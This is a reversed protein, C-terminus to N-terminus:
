WGPPARGVAAFAAHLAAGRGGALAPWVAKLGSGLGQECETPRKRCDPQHLAQTLCCLARFSLVDRVPIHTGPAARCGAPAPGVAVPAAHQVAGRGGRPVAGPLGPVPRVRGADRGPWVPVDQRRWCPQKLVCKWSKIAIFLLTLRGPLPRVLSLMIASGLQFSRGAAPRKSQHETASMIILGLLSLPIAFHLCSHTRVHHAPGQIKSLLGYCLAAYLLGAETYPM